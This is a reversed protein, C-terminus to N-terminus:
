NRKSLLDLIYLFLNLVDLYLTVAGLVYDEYGFREIILQTDFIIAASFVITGFLSYLMSSQYGFIMNFFGWFILIMICSPIWYSLFSFDINTQFTFITLSLFVLLTTGFATLVIHEYGAAVYSACVVGIIYSTSITFMTLVIYNYPRKDKVLFLILLLLIQLICSSYLFGSSNIVTDQISKVYMFLACITVNLVMQATLIGYVRRIFVRRLYNENISSDDNFSSYNEYDKKCFNTSM